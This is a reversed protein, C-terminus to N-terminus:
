YGKDLVCAVLSCKDGVCEYLGYGTRCTMTKMITFYKNKKM